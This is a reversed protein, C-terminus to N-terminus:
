HPTHLPCSILSESEDNIDRDSEGKWKARVTDVVEGVGAGYFINFIFISLGSTLEEM